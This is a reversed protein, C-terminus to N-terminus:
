FPIMTNCFFFNEGKSIYSCRNYFQSLHRFHNIINTKILYLFVQINIHSVKIEMKILDYACSSHAFRVHIDNNYYHSRIVECM